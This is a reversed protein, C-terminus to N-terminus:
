FPIEDADDVPEGFGDFAAILAAHWEPYSLTDLDELTEPDFDHATIFELADKFREDGRRLGQNLAAVLEYEPRAVVDVLDSFVYEFIYDAARSDNNKLRLAVASQLDSLLLASRMLHRMWTGLAGAACEGSERDYLGEKISSILISETRIRAADTCFPWIEPDLLVIVGRLENRSITNLDVSVVAAFESKAEESLIKWLAKIIHRLKEISGTDRKRYIDVLIDLKNKAPVESALLEAYRRSEVFEPDFVREIFSSRDFQSKAQGIVKLLYSVLLAVTNADDQSDIHKEHSRPNRFTKYLGRILHEIGGQINKETETELRNVRLKPKSGGFAEGVLSMGDTALGTKERVIDGLYQISELIAATYNREEYSKGITEWLRSDFSNQITM